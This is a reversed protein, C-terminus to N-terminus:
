KRPMPKIVDMVEVSFVLPTYPGISSVGSAGYALKSPLIFLVKTGKNLLLLVEEWGAIVRKQGVPIKVPAYRRTLDVMKAQKAEDKVSTDFIMGNIRKGTYNVIATDGAVIKPGTGQEIIEYYLSDATKTVNLKNDAIYKAILTPEEKKYGENEKKLYTNVKQKFVTDTLKGKAIVKEINIDYVIYKGKFGLPKPEGRKFLSDAFVKFVASDGQTLNKIGTFVDGNFQSKPIVAQVPRGLSYTTYLVSDYQTKVVMRISVFDGTRINQGKNHVYIKYLLHGPGAIFNKNVAAIKAFSYLPCLFALYILCRLYKYM